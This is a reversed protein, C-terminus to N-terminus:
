ASQARTPPSLALCDGDIARSIPKSKQIKSNLRVYRNQFEILTDATQIKLNYIQINTQNKLKYSKRDGSEWAQQPKLELM